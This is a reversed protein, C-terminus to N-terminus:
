SLNVCISSTKACGCVPCVRATAACPVCMCLHRCPLLLEMSKGQGCGKCRRISTAAEPKSVENENDGHFAVQNDGWCCSNADDVGRSPVVQALVRQLDGRLVNAAAEKSGVINHWAQAERQLVRLQDQLAQNRVWISKMEEDKAKLRKAARDEVASTIVRMHRQRQKALVEWLKSAHNLLLDDVLITQQQQGHHAGLVPVLQEDRKRKYGAVMEHSHMTGQLTAGRKALDVAALALFETYQDQGGVPPTPPLPPTVMYSSQSGQQNPVAVAYSTPM